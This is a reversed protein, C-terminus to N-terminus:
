PYAELLSGKAGGQPTESNLQHIEEKFTGGEAHPEDCHEHMHAEDGHQDGGYQEGLDGQGCGPGGYQEDLEGQM